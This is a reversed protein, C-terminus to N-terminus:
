KEFSILLSSSEKKDGIWARLYTSQEIENWTIKYVRYTDTPSVKVSGVSIGVSADSTLDHWEDANYFNGTCYEFSIEPLDEESSDKYIFYCEGASSDLYGPLYTEATIETSSFFGDSLASVVDIIYSGNYANGEDYYVFRYTGADAFRYKYYGGERIKEIMSNKDEVWKGNVMKEITPDKTVPTVENTSSDLIGFYAYTTAIDSSYMIKDYDPLSLDYTRVLGELKQSLAISYTDTYYEGDEDAASLDAFFRSGIFNDNLTIKYSVIDADESDVEKVTVPEGTNESGL